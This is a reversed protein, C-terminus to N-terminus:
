VLGAVDDAMAAGRRFAEAIGLVAVALLVPTLPVSMQALFPSDEGTLGLHDLGALAAADRLVPALGGGVLVALAVVVLLAPTGTAFPRGARVARLVHALALAGAAISLFLLVNGSHALLRLGLPLDPVHLDM